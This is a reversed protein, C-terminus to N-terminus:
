TPHLTSAAGVLGELQVAPLLFTKVAKKYRVALGQTERASQEVTHITYSIMKRLPM